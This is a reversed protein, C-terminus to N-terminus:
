ANEETNFTYLINGAMDIFQVALHTANLSVAAFGGMQGYHFRLGRDRTVIPPRVKSGAGSLVFHTRGPDPDHHELGHDHGNLYLAVGHRYLAPQLGSRLTVHDEHWHESSTYVPHHGVVIRWAATSAGFTRDLFAVQEALYQQPTIGRRNWFAVVGPENSYSPLMPTTDLFVFHVAVGNVELVKDFYHAPMFWNTSRAFKGGGGVQAATNGYHDHNGLVSYWVLDELGPTHYVQQWSTSIQEDNSTRLGLPYFNDGTNVVFAADVQQAALGMEVAVDRQCCMGDRGWDGIVLFQLSDGDVQSAFSSNKGAHDLCLQTQVVREKADPPQLQKDCWDDFAWPVEEAAGGGGGSKVIVGGLLTGLTLTLVLPGCYGGVAVCARKAPGRARLVDDDERCLQQQQQQQQLAEDDAAAVVIPVAEHQEGEELMDVCCIQKGNTQ